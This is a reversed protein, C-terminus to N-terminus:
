ASILSNLYLISFVFVIMLIYFSILNNLEIKSNIMLKKMDLLRFWKVFYLGMMWELWGKEIIFEYKFINKFMDLYVIKFFNNLFFMSSIFYLLFMNNGILMNLYFYNGLYVGLIYFELVLLKDQMFLLFYFKNFMSYFFSYGYFVMINYLIFMCIIMIKSSNFDMFVNFNFNNIMLFLVLRVSYSITLLMSFFFMYIFMISLKYNMMVEIILDKSYFGSLYPFGMLSFLSFVMILSKVPYIFIMSKYNRIDQDGNMSHIFDGACLFMLSKFLAHIVLHFFALESMGIMLVMMMFSLQSLTSLAIIKKLDFEFNAMIGAMFMTLVFLNLLYINVEMFMMFNNFRIMLYVGATVLTSSHVLSSVPTPATMAAPLWSSFPMQASKTLSALILMLSILNNNFFYLMLNWSGYISCLCIGTLLGIDGLRNCMITLMGSNLSVMSHYYIVLCYSILGLGDWGLMISLISPSLIMFCMSIIFLIVLYYFRTISKDLNMYELSYFMVLSSIIMVISLFMFSYLDLFMMYSFKMTMFYFIDWEFIFFFLKMYLYISLLIFIMSFLMMIIMFILLNFLM